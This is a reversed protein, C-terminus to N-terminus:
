SDARSRPFRFKRRRQRPMPMWFCNFALKGSHQSGPMGRAPVIQKQVSASLRLRCRITRMM